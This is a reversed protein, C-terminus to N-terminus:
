RAAPSHRQPPSGDLLSLEGIVEGPELEGLTRESEESGDRSRVTVVARGEVLIFLDHSDVKGEECLAEPPEFTQDETLLSLDHLDEPDLDEFLPVGRLFIMKEVTAFSEFKAESSAGITSWLAALTTDNAGDRPATSAVESKSSPASNESGQIEDEAIKLIHRASHVATEKVLAHPDKIAGAVVEGAETGLENVAAWVSAARLYPDSSSFSSAFLAALAESDPEEDSSPPEVLVSKLVEALDDHGECLEVLQGATEQRTEPDGAILGPRLAEVSETDCTIEVLELAREVASDKAKALLYALFGRADNRDEGLVSIQDRFKLARQLHHRTKELLPGSSSRLRALLAEHAKPEIGFARRLEVIEREGARRLLAETLATKYGELQARQEVTTSGEQSFLDREEESLRALVREHERTSIGLQKRIEGLLRLEGGGVLGDGIM